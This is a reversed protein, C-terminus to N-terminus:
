FTTLLRSTTSLNNSSTKPLSLSFEKSDMLVKMLNGVTIPLSQLEHPQHTVVVVWAEQLNVELRKTKDERTCSKIWKTLEIAVVLQVRFRTFEILEISNFSAHRKVWSCNHTCWQFKKAKKVKKTMRISFQRRRTSFLTSCSLRLKRMKRSTM